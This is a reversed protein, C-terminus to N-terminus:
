NHEKGNIDRITIKNKTAEDLVSQPIPKNQVPIELILEGKLRGGKLANPNFPGNSVKSGSSYKQALERVYSIATSEKVESLQTFKRSVIEKNPVYSDVVFKKGGVEKAELEVENYPYRPRNEKNFNNGAEWRDKLWDPLPNKKTPVEGTGETGGGGKDGKGVPKGDSFRYDPNKVLSRIKSGDSMSVTVVKFPLYSQLNASMKGQLIDSLSLEDLMKGAPTMNTKFKGDKMIQKLLAEEEMKGLKKLITEALFEHGSRNGPLEGKPALKMGKKLGVKMAGALGVADYVTSAIEMTAQGQKYYEEPDSTFSLPKGYVEFPEKIANGLAKAGSWTEGVAEGFKDPTEPFILDKGVRLGKDLGQATKNRVMLPAQPKGTVKHRLAMMPLEGIMWAQQKEENTAFPRRILNSVVSQVATTAIEDLSEGIFNLIGKGIAKGTDIVGQTRAADNRAERELVIQNIGKSAVEQEFESLTRDFAERAATISELKVEVSSVNVEEILDLTDVSTEIHLSQTAEIKVVSGSLNLNSPNQIQIATPSTLSMGSDKMSIYLVGEAATMSLETSSMSFAKGESNGFSKVNPDSMKQEHKAVPTDGSGGIKSTPIGQPPKARVTHIVMAEGEDKSPFYLKVKTGKEPIMYWAQNGEAAYPFWTAKENQAQDLELHLQVQNRHIGIISGNIAAGILNTNYYKRWQLNTKQECTYKWQLLGRDLKAQRKTIVYIEGDHKVRDGLDLAGSWSFRYAQLAYKSKRIVIRKEAEISSIVGDINQSEYKDGTFSCGESVREVEFPIDGLVVEDYKEPIGIWFCPRHVSIHPTLVVGVHSALRSIFQWDTEGYQLLFQGQKKNDFARDMYDSGPYGNLIQRIINLYTGDTHQFSRYKREIDMQYTHSIAEFKVHPIGRIIEIEYDRLQGMFLPILAGLETRVHLEVQDKSGGYRLLNMQEEASISGSVQLIAHDGLEHRFRLTEMHLKGYPWHFQIDQQTIAYETHIM